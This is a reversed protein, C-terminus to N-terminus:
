GKWKQRFFKLNELVLLPICGLIIWTLCKTMSIAGTHFIERLLPVHHIFIQLSFSVAVVALLKMNGFLGLQWITKTQNRAGFARLLEAVVLTSFAGDRASELNGVMYFEYAFVAIAISATLIGIILIQYSNLWSSDM